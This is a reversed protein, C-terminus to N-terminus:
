FNISIGGIFARSGPYPNSQASAEIDFGTYKTFTYVNQVSFYARVSTAKLSKTWRKPLTYGLELNKIRAYTGDELIADTGDGNLYSSGIRPAPYKDSPRDARWYNNYYDVSSNGKTNYSETFRLLSNRVKYGGAYTVFVVLDFDKYKFTNTLGGYYAPTSRGCFVRDDSNIQNDEYNDVIKRDGPLAGYVAAEAAEELQWIGDSELMYFENLSHGVFIQKNYDTKGDYLEIVENRNYTFNLTSTWQFNYQNINITNLSFEIGRNELVGVNTYSSQYGSELPLTVNWLLDTSQKYYYDISGAVRNGFFGYDLAVDLQKSREWTLNTNGISSYAAGTYLVGNLVYNFHQGGESVLAQYLYNGINQNGLMGASVRLKLNDIYDASKMFNEETIRWALALSPFYGWRHGPAFKSSGDARMTFTALYRDKYNYNARMYTSTLTSASASSSNPGFESGGGLNYYKTVPDVGKTQAFSSEAESKSASVGVMAKIKHDGFINNYTITNESQWYRSKSSTINAVGETAYHQGMRPNEYLDTIAFHLTAANNTKVSLHKLPTFEVFFSGTIHTVKTSKDLLDVMAVPNAKTNLFGDFYEGDSGYIPATPQASIASFMTGYLEYTEENINKIKSELVNLRFGMHAWDNLKSDNNFRVTIRNYNSNKIIGDMDYYDLGLYNSSKESGGSVSANYNQFKGQESIAAQWDTTEGRSLQLLEDRKWTYEIGESNILDYYQQASMMDMKNVMNMVGGQATFSVRTKGAAGKKSTILIVGNSGRNGYISAASADKLIEISEIDATAIQDFGGPVGDIIVLPGNGANVSGKGRIVVSVSGGPKLNTQTVQVGSAMGQLANGLLGVKTNKLDNVKVSSVSGTLDSKKSTGYGVVVVDDLNYNDSLMNVNIEKQGKYVVKQKIMGVFSFVLVDNQNVDLSYRGDADTTVGTLTGDVVVTVGVLPESESNMVIGSVKNQAFGEFVIGLFLVILFIYKKM